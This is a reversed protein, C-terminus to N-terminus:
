LANNLVRLEFNSANAVEAIAITRVREIKSSNEIIASKISKIKLVKEAM